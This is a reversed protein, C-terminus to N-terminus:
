KRKRGRKVPVLDGLFASIPDKLKQSIIFQEAFLPIRKRKKGQEGRALGGFEMPSFLNPIYTDPINFAPFNRPIPSSVRQRTGTILSTLLGPSQRQRTRPTVFIPTQILPVVREKSFPSQLIDLSTAVRGSTRTKEATVVRTDLRSGVVQDQAQGIFIDSFDLLDTTKTKRGSGSTKSPVFSILNGDTYSRSTLVNPIDLVPVYDTTGKTVTSRRAADETLRKADNFASELSPPLIQSQKTFPKMPSFLKTTDLPIDPKVSKGTDAITYIRSKGLTDGYSTLKLSKLISSDTESVSLPKTLSPLNIDVEEASVTALFKTGSKANIAKRLSIAETESGVLVARGDKTFVYQPIPFDTESIKISSSIGFVGTPKQSEGTIVGVQRGRTTTESLMKSVDFTLGFNTDVAAPTKEPYTKLESKVVSLVAESGPKGTSGMKRFDSAIDTIFTDGGSVTTKVQGTGFGSGSRSVFIESEGISTTLKPQSRLKGATKSVGGAAIGLALNAAVIGSAQGPDRLVYDVVDNVVQTATGTRSIDIKEGAISSPDNMIAIPLSGLTEGTSLAGRVFKGGVDGFKEEFFEPTASSPNFFERVGFEKQQRALKGEAEREEKTKYATLSASEGSTRFTFVRGTGRISEQGVYIIKPAQIDVNADVVADVSGASLVRDVEVRQPTSYERTETVEPKKVGAEVLAQTGIARQKVSKSITPDRSITQIQKKTLTGARSRKEIEKQRAESMAKEIRASIAKQEAVTKQTSTEVAM